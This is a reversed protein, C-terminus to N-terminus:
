HPPPQVTKHRNPIKLQEDMSGSRFGKLDLTIHAFGLESLREILGKRGEGSLLLSQEEEPVEIRVIPGHYRLRCQSFGMQRLAEEGMHLRRLLPLTIPLGYAVRSALCPSSPLDWTPLGIERSVRRIDAKTWGELALPSLVGAERAARIGPRYVQLDDANTGDLLYVLGKEKM